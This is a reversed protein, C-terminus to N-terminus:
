ISNRFVYQKWDKKYKRSLPLPAFGNSLYILSENGFSVESVFNINIIVNRQSYLFNDFPLQSKVAHLPIYFQVQDHVAYVTTRFNDYECYIVEDKRIRKMMYKNQLLLFENGPVNVDTLFSKSLRLLEKSFTKYSLPKLLYNFPKMKFAAQMFQAFSTIFIIEVSYMGLHTRIESAMSIGNTNEGLNIDIFCVNIQGSLVKRLFEGPRDTVCVIEARLKYDIIVTEILTEYQCLLDKNDDVIGILLKEPMTDGRYFAYPILTFHFM